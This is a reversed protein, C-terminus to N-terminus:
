FQNKQSREMEMYIDAYAQQHRCFGQQSNQIFQIVDVSWNLSFQSKTHQTEWNM